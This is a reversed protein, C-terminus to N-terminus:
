HKPLDGSPPSSEDGPNAQGAGAALLRSREQEARLVNLDAEAEAARARAEARRAEAEVRRAEADARRAETGTASGEAVKSQDRILASAAEKVLDITVEKVVAGSLAYAGVLVGVFMRRCKRFVRKALKSQRTDLDTLEAQLRELQRRADKASRAGPHSRAADVAALVDLVLTGAPPPPPSRYGSKILVEVLTDCLLDSVRDVEDQRYRAPTTPGHELQKWFGEDDLVDELARLARTRAFEILKIRSRPDKVPECAIGLAVVASEVSEKWGSM